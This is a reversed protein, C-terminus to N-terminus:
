APSRVSDSSRPACPLDRALAESQSRWDRDPTILPTLQRQCWRQAVAIGRGDGDFQYSWQADDLLLAAAMLRALSFAFGRAGAQQFDRGAALAAPLYNRVRAVAERAQEVAPGLDPM